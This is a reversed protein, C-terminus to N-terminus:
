PAQIVCADDNTKSAAVSRSSVHRHSASATRRKSRTAVPSSSSKPTATISRLHNRVTFQSISLKRAIDDVEVRDCVLMAVEQERTSLLELQAASYRDAQVTPLEMTATLSRVSAIVRKRLKQERSETFAEQVVQQLNGIDFPKLLYAFAKRDIAGIASALTAQGTMLIVAIEGGSVLPSELLELQRNGAMEIDAVLVDLQRELSAPGAL